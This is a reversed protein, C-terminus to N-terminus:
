WFFALLPASRGGPPAMESVVECQCCRTHEQGIASIFTRPVLVCWPISHSLDKLMYLQGWPQRPLTRIGESAWNGILYFYYWDWLALKLPLHWLTNLETDPVNYSALLYQTNNKYPLMKILMHQLILLISPFILALCCKVCYYFLM